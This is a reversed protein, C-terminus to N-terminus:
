RAETSSPESGGDSHAETSPSLARRARVRTLYDRWFPPMEVPMEEAWSQLQTAVNEDYHLTSSLGLMQGQAERLAAVLAERQGEAQTAREEAAFARRSEQSWLRRWHGAAQHASAGSSDLAAIQVRAREEADRSIAQEVAFPLLAWARGNSGEQAEDDRRTWEGGTESREREQRRGEEYGDTWARDRDGIPDGDTEVPMDEFADSREQSGEVPEPFGKARCAHCYTEGDVTIWYAHGCGEVPQCNDCGECRVHHPDYGTSGDERTFLRVAISHRWGSGDCVKVFTVEQSRPPTSVPEEFQHCGPVAHGGRCKHVDHEREYTCHWGAPSVWGCVDVTEEKLPSASPAAPFAHEYPTSDETM